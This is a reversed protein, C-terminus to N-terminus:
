RYRRNEAGAGVLIRCDQEKLIQIKRNKVLRNDCLRKVEEMVSNPFQM